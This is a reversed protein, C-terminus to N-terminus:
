GRGADAAAPKVGKYKITRLKQAVAPTVAAPPAGGDPPNLWSNVLQELDAVAIPGCKLGLSIALDEWSLQGSEVLALVDNIGCVGIPTLTGTVVSTPPLPPLPKCAAIQVASISMAAGGAALTALIASPHAFLRAIM